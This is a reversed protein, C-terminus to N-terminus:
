LMNKKEKEKLTVILYMNIIIITNNIIYKKTKLISLENNCYM